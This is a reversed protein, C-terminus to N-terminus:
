KLPDHGWNMLSHRWRSHEVDAKPGGQASHRRIYGVVKAAHAWDDDSWGARGKRLMGAIRRGSRHGTSEGAGQTDGAARSEATDLWDEMAGPTLNVLEGWTKWLENRDRADRDQDTM